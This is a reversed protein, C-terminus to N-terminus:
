CGAILGSRADATSPRDAVTITRLFLTEERALWDRLEAHFSRELGLLDTANASHQIVRLSVPDLVM